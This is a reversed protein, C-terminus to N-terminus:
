FVDNKEGSYPVYHSGFVCFVFVSFIMNCAEVLFCQYLQHFFTYIEVDHEGFNWVVHNIASWDCEIMKMKSRKYNELSLSDKNPTGTQSKTKAENVNRNDQSVSAGSIFRLENLCKLATSVCQNLSYYIINLSQKIKTSFRHINRQPSKVCVHMRVCVLRKLCKWRCLNVVNKLHQDM